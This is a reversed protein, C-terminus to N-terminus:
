YQDLKLDVQTFQHTVTLTENLREKNVIENDILNIIYEGQDIHVTNYVYKTEPDVYIRIEWSHQKGHVTFYMTYLMGLAKALDCYYNEDILTWPDPWDQTQATTLYYPVFPTKAWFDLTQALTDEFSLCDLKSRFDRWIKLRDQMKACSM